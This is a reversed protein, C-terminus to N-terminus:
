KKTVLHLSVHKRKDRSIKTGYEGSYIVSNELTHIEFGVMMLPKSPYYIEIMEPDAAAIPIRKIVKKVFHDDEKQYGTLLIEARGKMRIKLILQEAWTYIKWKEMSIGNFYTCFAVVQGAGIVLCDNRSDYVPQVGRYFMEWHGALRDDKCFIVNQMKFYDNM